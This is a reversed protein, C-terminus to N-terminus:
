DPLRDAVGDPVGDPVGEPIGEATPVPSLPYISGGSLPEFPVGDPVGFLPM